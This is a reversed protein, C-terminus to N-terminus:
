EPSKPTAPEDKLLIKISSKEKMPKIWDGLAKDMSEGSLKENIKPKVEDLTLQKGTKKNELKIIHYGFETEVIDSIQGPQLAFAADEFPKVMQGRSFYGLDGGQPASPCESNAKALEAFDEGNQAKVLIGQIKEKAAAKQQENSDPLVKVLIHRANAQEPEVYQNKNAEYYDSIDKDTVPEAIPQIKTEIFKRMTLIRKVMLIFKEETLGQMKLVQQFAEPTQFGSKVKTIETELETDKPELGEKKGEQYLIEQNILSALVQERIKAYKAPDQKPNLRGGTLMNLERTLDSLYIPEKNVEAAVIEKPQEKPQASKEQNPTTQETQELAYAFSSILIVLCLCILYKM